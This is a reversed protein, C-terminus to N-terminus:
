HDQVRLGKATPSSGAMETHIKDTHKHWSAKELELKKKGLVGLDNRASM